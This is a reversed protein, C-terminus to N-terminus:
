LGCDSNVVTLSKFLLLSCLLGFLLSVKGRWSYGAFIGHHVVIVCLFFLFPEVVFASLALGHFPHLLFELVFHHLIQSVFIEHSLLRSHILNMQFLLEIEPIFDVGYDGDEGLHVSFHFM